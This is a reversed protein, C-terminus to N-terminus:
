CLLAVPFVMNSVTETGKNCSSRCIIPIQEGINLHRSHPGPSVRRCRACCVVYVGFRM